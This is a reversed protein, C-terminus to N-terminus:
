STGYGGVLSFAVIAKYDVFEGRERKPLVNLIWALAAAALVGLGIYVPLLRPGPRIYSKM